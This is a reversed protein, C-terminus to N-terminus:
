GAMLHALASATEAPAELMPLHGAGPLEVLHAQPVAAKIERAREIPILLDADGHVIVVPLTLNGLLGTADQREAMAGLAGIIGAASQREMLKRMEGQLRTDASLKPTMGEIVPAAGKEAVEAATKYRGERRDPPDALVQSSVLGLGLMRAPFRRLFALAVYGGMSHGVVIARPIRLVDLLHAADDALDEMSYRTQEVTSGGFGRLDPAVLDFRSELLPAVPDWISHDLPYGHLLLMPTGRGRRVYSLDLNGSKVTEM